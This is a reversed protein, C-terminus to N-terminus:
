EPVVVSNNGMPYGGNKFSNGGPIAFYIRGEKKVINEITEGIGDHKDNGADQKGGDPIFTIEFKNSEVSSGIYQGENDVNLESYSGGQNGAKQDCKIFYNTDTTFACTGGMGGAAGSKRGTGGGKGGGAIALKTSKTKGDDTPSLLSLITDTGNAGSYNGGYGM